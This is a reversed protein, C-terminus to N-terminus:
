SHLEKNSYILAFMKIFLLFFFQNAHFYDLFSGHNLDVNELNVKKHERNYCCAVLFCHQKAAHKIIAFDDFWICQYQSFIYMLETFVLDIPKHQLYIEYM